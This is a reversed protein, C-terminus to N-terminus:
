AMGPVSFFPSICIARVFYMENKRKFYMIISYIIVVDKPVGVIQNLALATTNSILGQDYYYRIIISAIICIVLIVIVLIEINKKM